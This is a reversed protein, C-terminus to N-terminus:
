PDIMALSSHNFNELGLDNSGTSDQRRRAAERSLEGRDAGWTTSMKPDWPDIQTTLPGISWRVGTLNILYWSIGPHIALPWAMDLRYSAFVYTLSPLLIYSASWFKCIACIHGFIESWRLINPGLGMARNEMSSILWTCPSLIWGLVLFCFQLM